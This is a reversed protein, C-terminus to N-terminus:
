GAMYGGWKGWSVLSWWRLVVAALASVLSWVRCSSWKNLSCIGCLVYWPWVMSCRCAFITKLTNLFYSSQVLSRGTRLSFNMWSQKKNPHDTVFVCCRVWKSLETRPWSAKLQRMGGKRRIGQARKLKEEVHKQLDQHSCRVHAKPWVEPCIRHCWSVEAWWKGMDHGFDAWFLWRSFELCNLSSPYCPSWRGNGSLLSAFIGGRTPFM